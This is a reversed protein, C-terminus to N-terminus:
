LYTYDIENKQDVSLAIWEMKHAVAMGITAVSALLYPAVPVWVKYAPSVDSYHMAIALIITLVMIGVSLWGLVDRVDPM